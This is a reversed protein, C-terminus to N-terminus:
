SRLAAIVQDVADRGLSLGEEYGDTYPRPFYGHWEPALGAILLRDGHAARLEREIAHFGEGPVAVLTVTGIAWELLEVSRTPRAGALQALVTDGMPVSLTRPARVSISAGSPEARAAAPAIAEALHAAYAEVVPAWQSPAGSDWWEIPNVDGQCGQLFVTPMGTSAALLRRLPGVYDTAIALNPPGTVTPHIGINAIVTVPTLVLVAASPSLAHGRRNIAVDGPLDVRAFRADVRARNAHAARVAELARDVLLAPFGDPVPWGLAETGPLASPGAHTHICSTVVAAEDCDLQSAVATRIPASVSRAMVLLDFTLLCCTTGGDDIVLAHVRLDDHVHTALGKRDGYGALAVPLAPTISASGLGAHM